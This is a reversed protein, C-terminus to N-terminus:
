IELGLAKATALNVILDYKVPREVPIDAPKTGRLIKDARAARDDLHEATALCAARSQQPWLRCRIVQDGVPQGAFRGRRHNSNRTRRVPVRLGQRRRLGRGAGEARLDR